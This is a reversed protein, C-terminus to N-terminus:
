AVEQQKRDRQAQHQWRASSVCTFAYNRASARARHDPHHTKEDRMGEEPDGCAPEEDRTHDPAVDNEERPKPRSQGRAQLGVRQGTKARTSNNPASM